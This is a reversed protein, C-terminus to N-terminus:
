CKDSQTIPVLYIGLQVVQDANKEDQVWGIIEDQFARLRAKFEPIKDRALPINILGIEREEPSLTELLGKWVKLTQLHTELVRAWGLDDGTDIVPDKAEWRGKENKVLFGGDVLLKLSEEAQEATILHRLRESIWEGEAKFDRLFVLERVVLHYWQSLVQSQASPIQRCLMRKLSKLIVQQARLQDEPSDASEQRVLAIFYDREWAKCGMADAVREAMEISLNRKGQIV